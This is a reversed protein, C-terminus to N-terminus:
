ETLITGCFLKKQRYVQWRKPLWRLMALFTPVLGTVRHIASALTWGKLWDGKLTFKLAHWLQFQMIHAASKHSEKFELIRPDKLLIEVMQIVELSNTLDRFNIASLQKSHSRVVATPVGSVIITFKSAFRYLWEWDPVQKWEERFNGVSDFLETKFMMGTLNGNISGKELLIPVTIDPTLVKTEKRWTVSEPSALQRNQYDVFELFSLILGAESNQEMLQLNTELCEPLLYDDSCLFIIYDGSCKRIAQNLNAFLGLNTTNYFIKINTVTEYQQLLKKTPEQSADDAIILEWNNYTQKIVSEIAIKLYQERNYVPLVISILPQQMLFSKM